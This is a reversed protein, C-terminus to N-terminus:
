KGSQFDKDPRDLSHDLVNSQITYTGVKPLEDLNNESQFIQFDCGCSM